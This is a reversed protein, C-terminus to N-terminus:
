RKEDHYLIFIRNRDLIDIVSILKFAVRKDIKALNVLSLYNCVKTLSIVQRLTAQIYDDGKFVEVLVGMKTNSVKVSKFEKLLETIKKKLERIDM